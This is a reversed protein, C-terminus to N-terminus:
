AAVVEGGGWVCTNGVAVFCLICISIGELASMGAGGCGTLGGVKIRLFDPSSTLGDSLDM